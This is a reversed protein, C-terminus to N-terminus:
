KEGLRQYEEKIATIPKNRLLMRPPIEPYSLIWEATQMNAFYVYPQRGKTYGKVRRRKRTVIKRGVLGKLSIQLQRRTLQDFPKIRCLDNVTTGGQAEHKESFTTRLFLTELLLKQLDGIRRARRTKKKKPM